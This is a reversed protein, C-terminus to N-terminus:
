DLPINHTHIVDRHQAVTDAVALVAILARIM